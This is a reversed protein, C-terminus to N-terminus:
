QADQAHRRAIYEGMDAREEPTLLQMLAEVAVDINKSSDLAIIVLKLYSRLQENSMDVTEKALEAVM